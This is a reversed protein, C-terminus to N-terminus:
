LNLRYIQAHPVGEVELIKDKELIEAKIAADTAKKGVLNISDADKLAKIVLEETVFDGKYFSEHTALDLFHKDDEYVKGIHEVDCVAVIKRRDANMIKM